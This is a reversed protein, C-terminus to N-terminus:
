RGAIVLFSVGQPSTLACSRGGGAVDHPPITVAGGEEVTIRTAADASGARFYTAWDSCPSAAPAQGPTTGAAMAGALHAGGLKFRVYDGHPMALVEAEWGFLAGYFERAGALDTTELQYWCPAGVLSADVAPGPSSNMQWLDFRAGTPDTCVAMRGVPGLDRIERMNGGLASVRAASADVDAVKMMIGICAVTGPPTNPMELDFIGGFDRGGVRARHGLGPIEAYEWGLLRTFYARAEAPKPTIMNLWCIEGPAFERASM